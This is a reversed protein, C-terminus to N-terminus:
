IDRNYGPTSIYYFVEDVEQRVLKNYEFDGKKYLTVKRKLTDHGNKDVIAEEYVYYMYQSIKRFAEEIPIFDIEEEIVQVKRM